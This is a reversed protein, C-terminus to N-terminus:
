SYVVRFWRLEGEGPPSSEEMVGEGRAGAQRHAPSLAPTLPCSTGPGFMSLEM